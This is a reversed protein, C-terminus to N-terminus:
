NHCFLSMQDVDLACSKNQLCLDLLTEVKSHLWLSNLAIPFHKMEHGPSGVHTNEISKKDM